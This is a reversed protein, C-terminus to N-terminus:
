PMLRLHHKSTEFNRAEWQHSDEFIQLLNSIKGGIKPTPFNKKSLLNEAKVGGCWVHTCIKHRDTLPHSLDVTLFNLAWVLWGIFIFFTGYFFLYGDRWSSSPLCSFLCSFCCCETCCTKVIDCNFPRWTVVAQMKRSKTAIKGFSSESKLWEVAYTALINVNEEQLAKLAKVSNTPRWSIM